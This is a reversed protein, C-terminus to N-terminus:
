IHIYYVDPRFYLIGSLATQLRHSWCDRERVLTVTIQIGHGFGISLDPAGFRQVTGDSIGISARRTRRSASRFVHRSFFVRGGASSIDTMNFCSPKKIVCCLRYKIKEVRGTVHHVLLNLM